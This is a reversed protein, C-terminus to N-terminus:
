SVHTLTPNLGVFATYCVRGGQRPSRCPAAAGVLHALAVDGKAHALRDIMDLDAFARRATMAIDQQSLRTELRQLFRDGKGITVTRNLARMGGAEPLDFLATIEGNRPLREEPFSDGYAHTAIRILAVVGLQAIQNDGTSGPRTLDNRMAQRERLRGLGKLFEILTEIAVNFDDKIRLSSRFRKMMKNFM